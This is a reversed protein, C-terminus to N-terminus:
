QQTLQSFFINRSAQNRHPANLKVWQSSRGLARKVEAGSIAFLKIIVNGKKTTKAKKLSDVHHLIFDEDLQMINGECTYYKSTRNVEIILNCVKNIPRIIRDM